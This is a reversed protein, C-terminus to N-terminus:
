SAFSPLAAIFEETTKPGLKLQKLETKFQAPYSEAQIANELQGGTAILSELDNKYRDLNSMMM